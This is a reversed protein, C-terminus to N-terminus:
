GALRHALLSGHVLLRNHPFALEVTRAVASRRKVRLVTSRTPPERCVNSPYQETMTIICIRHLLWSSSMRASGSWGGRRDVHARGSHTPLPRHNCVALGRGIPYTKDTCCNQDQRVPHVLFMFRHQAQSDWMVHLSARRLLRHGLWGAFPKRPLISIAFWAANITDHGIM